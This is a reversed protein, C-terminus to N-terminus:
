RSRRSPLLKRMTCFRTSRILQSEANSAIATGIQPSVCVYSNIDIRLWRAGLTQDLDLDKETRLRGEEFLAAIARDALIGTDRAMM